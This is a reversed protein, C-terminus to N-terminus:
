QEIHKTKPLVTLVDECTIFIDIGFPYRTSIQRWQDMFNQSIGKLELHTTSFVDSDFYEKEEVPLIDDVQVVMTTAKDPYEFRGIRFTDLSPMTAPKTIIVFQAMCPETVVSCRCGFQLWNVVPNQWDVDTWVPTEHDLLALCTAASASNFAAPANPNECITSLQGPNEMAALISRFTNPSELAPDDFGHRWYNHAPVTDM